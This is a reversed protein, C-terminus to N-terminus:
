TVYVVDAFDYLSEAKEDQKQATQLGNRSAENVMVNPDQNFSVPVNIVGDGAASIVLNGWSCKEYQKVLSVEDTFIYRYIEEKSNVPVLQADDKDVLRLVLARLKGTSQILSRRRLHHTLPPVKVVVMGAPDPVVVAPQDNRIEGFPIAVIFDTALDDSRHAKHQADISSPLIITYSLDSARGQDLIPNCEYFSDNAIDEKSSEHQVM